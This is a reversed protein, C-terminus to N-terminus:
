KLKDSLPDEDGGCIACARKYFYCDTKDAEELVTKVKEWNTREEESM